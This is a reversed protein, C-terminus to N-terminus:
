INLHVNDIHLMYLLPQVAIRFKVTLSKIQIRLHDRNSFVM